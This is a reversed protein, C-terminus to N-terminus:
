ANFAVGGFRPHTLLRGRKRRHISKSPPKIHQIAATLADAVDDHEPKDLILEEELVQCNGGRYHWMMGNDYHPIAITNIREEKSGDHRNPKFDILKFVVGENKMYQKFEELVVIQSQVTEIVMQRVSWKLHIDMAHNWMVSIKTTKFRDIDLVYFNNNSDIGLVVISTYDAKKSESFALDM